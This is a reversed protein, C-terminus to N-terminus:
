EETWMGGLLWWYGCGIATVAVLPLAFVCVLAAMADSRVM